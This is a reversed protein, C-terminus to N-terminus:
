AILPQSLLWLTAVTYLLMLGTMAYQSRAAHGGEGPTRGPGAADNGRDLGTQSSMQSVPKDGRLPRRGPGEQDLLVATRHAATVALIHGGVILAIEIFWVLAPSAAFGEFLHATGLLNWGREFPDSALRLLQPGGTIFLPANHALVYAIGIPVLSWAFLRAVEALIRDTVLFRKAMWTAGLFTGYFPVILLALGATDVLVAPASDLGVSTLFSTWGVTEALNDFTTSALLVFLSAYLAVPMPRMQSLGSIVARRYLGTADIRLPASLGAFTFLLSLPDALPWHDGFSARMTFVYVSYALLVMVVWFPDFGVGSVLEFWFLGFLLVPGLWWPPRRAVVKVDELRYFREATGWPDIADWTGSVLANLTAVGFVLGIWFGLTTFTVTGERVVLGSILLLLLFGV